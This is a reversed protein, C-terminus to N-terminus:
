AKLSLEMRILPRRGQWLDVVENFTEKFGLKRYLDSSAELGNTTELYVQDVGCARCHDIATEVLRRGLGGGRCDRHLLIWRLQAVQESRHAIASCGVLEPRDSERELLWIRGNFGNELGYEAITQAVFAEFELGYGPWDAYVEGHLAILRGLDGPQLEDRLRLGRPWNDRGIAM